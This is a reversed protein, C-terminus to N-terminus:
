QQHTLLICPHQTENTNHIVLIGFPAIYTWINPNAGCIYLRPALTRTQLRLLGQGAAEGSKPGSSFGVAPGYRPGQGLDANGGSM